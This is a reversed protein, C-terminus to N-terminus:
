AGAPLFAGVHCPGGSHLCNGPIGPTSPVSECQATGWGLSAARSSGVEGM